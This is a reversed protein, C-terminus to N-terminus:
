AVAIPQRAPLSVVFETGVGPESRVDIRGRHAQVIGRAIALGLGIGNRTARDGRFFRDFISPLQEAPIGPGEDIVAIRAEGDDQEARVIVESNRASFKVANGVLNCLAQVLRDRDGEIRAGIAVLSQLRISKEEAIPSLMSVVESVVEGLTMPALELSLRGEEIQAVDLLDDLLRSMQGAGRAISEYCRGQRALSPGTALLDCAMVVTNLPTRLDHSVIALLEDRGQIASQAQLYLRANDVQLAARGALELVLSLDEDTYRRASRDTTALAVVGITRERARLPVLISSRPGLRQLVAAHAANQATRELMAAPIDAALVPEGTRLVAGAGRVDDLRPPELTALEEVVSQQTPDAHAFGVRRIRQEPDLSYTIAYDALNSVAFTALQRLTTDPDLSEALVASARALISLREVAREADRRASEAEALLQANEIALGARAALETVLALDEPGYERRSEAHIFTLAGLTRARSKLPVIMGSRFGLERLAQLHEEDQAVRGLLEPEIQAILTPEGTRIALAVGTAADPRSPWRRATQWALEVRAPDAHSLRMPVIEGGPGLLHVCYWDALTPVALESLQDLTSDLDLSSSLIRGAEVLFQNRLELLKSETIDRCVGLMWAPAGTSDILLRGHAGIWRISGDPRIIRYENQYEQGRAEVVRRIAEAARERDDPHVDAEYAEFTGPFTGPMLGHLAELEPSWAVEGTQINWDWTGMRGAALALRLRGESQGPEGPPGSEGDSRLREVDLDM